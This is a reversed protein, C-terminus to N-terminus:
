ELGFWSRFEQELEAKTEEPTQGEEEAYEWRQELEQTVDEENIPNVGGLLMHACDKIGCEFVQQAQHYAVWWLAAAEPSDSGTDELPVNKRIWEVLEAYTRM